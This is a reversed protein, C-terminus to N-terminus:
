SEGSTPMNSPHPTTEIPLSGAVDCQQLHYVWNDQCWGQNEDNREDKILAGMVDFNGKESAISFPTGGEFNVGHNVDVKSNELLVEVAELHGMMSAIYLPTRGEKDITNVNSESGPCQLLGRVARFDGVWAAQFLGDIVKLCCTPKLTM